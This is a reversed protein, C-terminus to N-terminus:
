LKLFNRLKEADGDFVYGAIDVSAAGAINTPLDDVFLCEEACLDYRDLLHAFIAPDPKVLGLPGSFVLGDFPALLEDLWAASRYGEVFGVSINSLLYVQRGATKIDRVLAAMGDIPTLREWWADYVRRAADHLAPPLRDCVAALLKDDSITNDDLKDWYLRDFLVAEIQAAAVPDRVVAATLAKPSFHVLVNGFDFIVTKTM